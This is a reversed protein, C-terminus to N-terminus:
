DALHTALFDVQQRVVDEFLPPLYVEFHGADFSTVEAKPMLAAAARALDPPTTEDLDGVVVLAPCAVRGAVGRPQYAGLTVLARAPVRNNWESRDDVIDLFQMAESSAMCAFSGEPGVIPVTVAGGFLGAIKDGIISGAAKLTNGLSLKVDIGGVYPVQAVIAKIGSDEAALTIVHGGSFSSGWLAIRSTDIEPLTRAYALAQRWDAVHRRPDVLFRPTGDSDGFNRYDFLLVALGAQAFREAYAPLRFTREASFGHAMIVLPASEIGDPLYLWGRCTSGDSVFSIDKRQYGRQDEM